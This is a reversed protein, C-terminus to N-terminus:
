SARLVARCRSSRSVPARARACAPSDSPFFHDLANAQVWMEYKNTLGQDVWTSTKVVAFEFNFAPADRLRKFSQAITPKSASTAASLAHMDRATRHVDPRLVQPLKAVATALADAESLLGLFGPPTCESRRGSNRCTAEELTRWRSISGFGFYPTELYSMRTDLAAADGKIRWHKFSAALAKGPSLSFQGGAANDGWLFTLDQQVLDDDDLLLMTEIGRANFIDPMYFRALNFPSKHKPDLHSDAVPVAFPFLGDGDYRHRPVSMLKENKWMPPQGRLMSVAADVESLSREIFSAGECALQTESPISVEWNDPIIVHLVLRTTDNTSVCLSNLAAAAALPRDTALVIRMMTATAGGKGGTNAATNKAAATTPRLLGGCCFVAQTILAVGFLILMVHFAM